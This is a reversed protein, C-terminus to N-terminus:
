AAADGLTSRRPPQDMDRRIREGENRRLRFAGGSDEGGGAPIAAFFTDNRVYSRVGRPNLVVPAGEPIHWRSLSLASESGPSFMTTDLGGNGPLVASPKDSAFGWKGALRADRECDPALCGCAENSAAGAGCASSGSTRAVHLRKGLDSHVLPTSRDTLAESALLGEYPIRM